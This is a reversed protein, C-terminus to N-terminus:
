MKWARVKFKELNQQLGPKRLKTSVINSFMKDLICLVKDAGGDSTTNIMNLKKVQHRTLLGVKYAALKTGVKKLLKECEEDVDGNVIFNPIRQLFPLPNRSVVLV